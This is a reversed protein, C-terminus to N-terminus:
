GGGGSISRAGGASAGASDAEGVEAPDGDAAGEVPDPAEIPRDRRDRMTRVTELLTRAERTMLAEAGKKERLIREAETANVFAADLDGVRNQVRALNYRTRGVRWDDPPVIELLGDLAEQYQVVANQVDERALTLTARGHLVGVRIVEAQPTKPFRACRRIAEELVEQAEDLRQQARLTTALHRLTEVTDVDAEGLSAERLALARRYSAEAGPLDQLYYRLRALAFETEAFQAASIRGERFGAEQVRHAEEIAARARVADDFGLHVLGLTRLVGALQYPEDRLEMSVQQEVLGLFDDIGMSSSGAGTEPNASGLAKQFSALTRESRVREREANRYAFYLFVGSVVVTLALVAAATAPIWHRRLTKRVVYAVSDGRALIPRGDIRRTLDEVLADATDYRRTPDAALLRLAIVELDADVSPAFQRPRPPDTMTKQVVLEAISKAGEFPRRGCLCEFLVVGLAYLDCRSDIGAPDGALQEPAAYAFTGLFEGAMTAEGGQQERGAGSGESLRALGFDLIRPVGERDVLINGPKLDRHIVGRRHAYAVAEAVKRFLEVLARPKLHGRRVYEDFREGEVLEMAFWPEGSRTLGSEYLTVIGPHRLHAVVEVEREFRIRQKESAFRGGLLMKVACARRTAIQEAEYVAGQGGRHLEKGLRYGRIPSGDDVEPTPMPRLVSAVEAIEGLFANDQDFRDVANACRSCVVLHMALEPDPEIERERRAIAALELADAPFKGCGVEPPLDQTEDGAALGGAGFADLRGELGPEDRASAGRAPPDGARRGSAGGSTPEDPM